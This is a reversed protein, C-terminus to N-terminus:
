IESMGSPKSPQRRMSIAFWAMGCLIYALYVFPLWNYPREPVPYLTGALASRRHTYLLTSARM